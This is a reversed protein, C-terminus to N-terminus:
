YIAGLYAREIRRQEDQTSVQSRGHLMRWNDLILTDGPDELVVQTPEISALSEAVIAYIAQSEQTAPVVFLSDWRFLESGDEQRSLIRLLPRSRKLPRRPRVLARTLNRRGIISIVDKTDVLTTSVHKSGIVCRLAFYRPPLFWHALDTHLPFDEIGFNGSYTNLPAYDTHRPTLVQIEALGPLQVVPGLGRFADIGTIEPLRGTIVAFGDIALKTTLDLHMVQSKHSANRWNLSLHVRDM